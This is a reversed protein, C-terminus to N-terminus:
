RSLIKEIAVSFGFIPLLGRQHERVKMKGGIETIEIRSGVKSM